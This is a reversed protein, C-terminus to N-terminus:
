CRALSFSIVRKVSCWASPRRNRVDLALQLDDGRKKEIDREKQAIRTKEQEITIAQNFLDQRQRGIEELQRIFDTLLIVREADAL